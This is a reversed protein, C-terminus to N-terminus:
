GMACISHRAMRDAAGREMNDESYAPQKLEFLARAYEKTQLLGHLNHNGYSALEVARAELKALDRVKKPYRAREMDPKMASIFGDARLVEEAKDLYEPRPIRVGREIKRIQDEGYGVADAFEPVSMAVAQRRRKLLPGTYEVVASIEDEPHCGM